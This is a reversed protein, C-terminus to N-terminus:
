EERAAPSNILGPPASTTPAAGPRGNPFLLKNLDDSSGGAKTTKGRQLLYNTLTDIRGQIPAIDTQYQKGLTDAKARLAAAQAKMEPDVSAMPNASLKTLETAIPALETKYENLRQAKDKSYSQLAELRSKAEVPDPLKLPTGDEMTMPKVAKTKPDITFATGDDGIHPTSGAVALQAAIHERAATLSAGASIGATTISTANMLKTRELESARDLGKEGSTFGQTAVRESTTFARGKEERAGALQDALLVMEKQADAKQAELTYAGATTAVATGLANLGNGLDFAM